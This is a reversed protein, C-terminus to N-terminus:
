DDKRVMAKTATLVYVHHAGAALLVEACTSSTAGTTLVDDVLIVPFDLKEGCAFTGSLNHLRKERSLGRQTHVYGTRTLLQKVPLGCRRGLAECLERGHDIGRERRRKGPMTVWTIVTDQPPQMAKLTDAMGEALAEAASVDCEEKLLLVLEKAVGDYRFTSFADGSGADEPTLRMAELGKQCTPCLLEGGTLEECCQCKVGVPAILEDLARLWKMM